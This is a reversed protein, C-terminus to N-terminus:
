ALCRERPDESMVEPFYRNHLVVEATMCALSPAVLFGHRYFGNVYVTGAHSRIRPLNDPFAPRVGTGMEVIEAEGFAPHVAYAASLLELVSRVSIRTSEDSEITTAGIMFIGEGRPVIYVPVRPHLVRVPRTLSIESSRVVVMEGKVGRLNTLVDRAAIGRCDVVRDAVAIADPLANVNFRIRVGLEALRRALAALAARPDLHGEDEVFLVRNFRGALDPELRGLAEGNIWEFQETRRSFNILESMDRAHAVVLTGKHATNPFRKRWWGISTTGLKSVIPDAGGALECWPALMGGAHWSCSSSGLHAGRELVEVTAGREALELACSLGGVGAGIVTVDV